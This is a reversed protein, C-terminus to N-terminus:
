VGPSGFVGRPDSWASSQAFMGSVKYDKTDFDYEYDTWFAEREYLRLGHDNKDALLFWADTDTLYHWVRVEFLNQLVNIANTDDDPRGSSQAYRAADFRLEKPVLLHRPEIVARRGGGTRFDSFDIYAQEIATDSLDAATTLENKYTAGNERLHDTAFLEKGDPGTYGSDFGRNFHNALITEETAIAALALEIALEEMSGYQDERLMRRTVRMANGYDLHTFTQRFGENTAVYSLGEGELLQEMIGIGGVTVTDEQYQASDRVNFLERGVGAREELQHFMVMDIQRLTTHHPWNNTTHIAAM